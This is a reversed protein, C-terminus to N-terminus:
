RSRSLGRELREVERAQAEALPAANPGDAGPPPRDIASREHATATSTGKLLYDQAGAAVAAIGAAEDALGTLVILPTGPPRRVCSRSRRSAPPTPCASISCCVTSGPGLAVLADALTRSRIMKAQPLRENLEDEVLRADGEDDEVLLVTLEQPPPTQENASM